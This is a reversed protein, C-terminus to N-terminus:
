GLFGPSFIEAEASLTEYHTGFYWYEFYGKCVGHVGVTHYPAVRSHVKDVSGGYQWWDVLTEDYFAIGGRYYAVYAYLEGRTWICDGFLNDWSVFHIWISNFYVGSVDGGVRVKVGGYYGSTESWGSEVDTAVIISITSSITLLILLPILFMHAKRM